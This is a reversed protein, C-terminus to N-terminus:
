SSCALLFCGEIAEGNTGAEMYTGLNRGQNDKMVSLSLSMHSSIFEKKELSRKTTIKIMAIFSQTPSEMKSPHFVRPHSAWSHFPAPNLVKYELNPFANRLPSPHALCSPVTESLLTFDRWAM